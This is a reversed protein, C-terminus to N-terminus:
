TVEESMDWINVSEKCIYRGTTYCGVLNNVEVIKKKLEVVEIQNKLSEHASRLLVRNTAIVYKLNWRM